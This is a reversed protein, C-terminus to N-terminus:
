AADSRAVFAVPFPAAALLCAVATKRLRPDRKIEERDLLAALELAFRISESMGTSPDTSLPRGNGPLPITSMRAAGKM